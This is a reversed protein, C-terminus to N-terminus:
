LSKEPRIFMLVQLSHLVFLSIHNSPEDVHYGCYHLMYEWELHLQTRLGLIKHFNTCRTFNIMLNEHYVELIKISKDLSWIKLQFICTFMYLWLIDVYFGYWFMSLTTHITYSRSIIENSSFSARCFCNKISLFWRNEYGCNLLM